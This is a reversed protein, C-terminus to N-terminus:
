KKGLVFYWLAVIISILIGIASFLIILNQSVQNKEEPKLNNLDLNSDQYCDITCLFPNKYNNESNNTYSRSQYNKTSTNPNAIYKEYDPNIELQENPEIQFDNYIQSAVEINILINQNRKETKNYTCLFQTNAYSYNGTYICNELTFKTGLENTYCNVAQIKNSGILYDTSETDAYCKVSEKGFPEKEIKTSSKIRIRNPKAGYQATTTITTNIGVLVLLIALLISIKKM